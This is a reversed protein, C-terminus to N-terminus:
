ERIIKIEGHLGVQIIQSPEGTAGEELYPDAVWDAAEIIEVPIDEYWAPAPQGSINASTSVIPKHFRRIVEVCFDNMPIRIGATGDAAVVNPALGMADPYIITMPKDNVELLNIAVEPIVKVYKGLMDADAVLTILSKSDARQKIEYIRAVAAEDTADCGLGWVTDTPYLIIGGAKLTEVAAKVEELDIEKEM